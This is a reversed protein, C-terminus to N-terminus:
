FQGFYVIFYIPLIVLAVLYIIFDIPIDIM